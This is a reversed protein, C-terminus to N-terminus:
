KVHECFYVYAISLIFFAFTIVMWVIDQMDLVESHNNAM